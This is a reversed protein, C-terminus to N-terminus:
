TQTEYSAIERRNAKRLSIIRMFEGRLTYVGVYLRQDIPLFFKLREEGYDKRDDRELMASQWDGDYLSDFDIGHKVLNRRRKEEDWVFM